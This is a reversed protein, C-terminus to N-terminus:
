GAIVSEPSEVGATRLLSALPRLHLDLLDLLPGSDALPLQRVLGRAEEAFALLRYACYSVAGSRLLIKQARDLADDDHAARALRRLEEREGHESVMGYLIALNNGPRQWDAGAPVQMADSLDDSVQVLRGLVGGVEALAEATALPAGGLVAGLFLASAFLPPTKAGVVQWYEAEDRVERGDLSQGYATGLAMRALSGQLAARVEPAAPAEDLLRHGAAQLALAMNAAAGAGLRRYTGRPDEDLLDDVLHIALLSCFVAGAAPLAREPHGGVAHCALVPYEWVSTARRPAVRSVLERLDGWCAVEPLALLREQILEFRM